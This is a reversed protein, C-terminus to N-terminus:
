NLRNEGVKSKGMSRLRLLDYCTFAAVIDVNSLMLIDDNTTMDVKM